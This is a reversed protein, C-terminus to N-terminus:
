VKQALCLIYGNNDRIYWERMGYWATHLEKVTEVRDKLNAALGEVDEVEFYFSASAGPKERDLAPIDEKFSDTEQFMIETNQNKVLAYIYDKDQEFGTEIGGKDAPVAMVLKFGLIERYFVVAKKVDQVM